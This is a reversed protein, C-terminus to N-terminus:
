LILTSATMKTKGGGGPVQDTVHVTVSLELFNPLSGAVAKAFVISGGLVFDDLQQAAQMAGVNQM